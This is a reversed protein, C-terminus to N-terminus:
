RNTVSSKPSVHFDTFPLRGVKPLVVLAHGHRALTDTDLPADSSKLSALM